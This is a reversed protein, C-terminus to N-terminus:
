FKRLVEEDYLSFNLIGGLIGDMIRMIECLKCVAQQQYLLCEDMDCSEKWRM